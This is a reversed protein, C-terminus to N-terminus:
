LRAEWEGRTMAYEVDGFESGEITEPWEEYFTRVLTLGCKEMVRRSAANVTMTTAFVRRVGLETFGKDILARSGETAYGRGWTSALLRYGLEVDDPSTEDSPRFHFWGLFEGTAQATAAWFGYSPFREYYALFRPMTEREVVDRPTPVGGNLFRMVAPDADLAVLNDVDAWTFRRLILRDTELFVHTM